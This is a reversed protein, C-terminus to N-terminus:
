RVGHREALAIGSIVFALGVLHYWFLPENLFIIGMLPGFVPVLNTFLGARSPGIREVGWIFFLQALLSPFVAVYLTIMGGKLSPLAALGLGIEVALLPLSTLFAAVSLGAFFALSSVPPRNKLLLAYAAYFLCAILMLGDGLNLAFSSLIEPHGRVAVIIAGALTILGGALQVGYLRSAFFLAGGIMVLIPIVGQLIAINAAVTFYAAVYFLSNFATFGLVSMVLLQKWAKWLVPADRQLERWALPYIVACVVLWRLTVLMMPSIEGVALRGAVVNGAWMLSTLVLFAYAQHTASLHTFVM